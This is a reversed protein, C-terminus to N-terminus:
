WKSRCENVETRDTNNKFHREYTSIYYPRATHSHSSASGKHMHVCALSLRDKDGKMTRPRVAKLCLRMMEPRRTSWSTGPICRGRGRLPLTVPTCLWRNTGPIWVWNRVSAFCISKHQGAGCGALSVELSWLSNCLGAHLFVLSELCQLELTTCVFTKENKDNFCAFHLTINVM